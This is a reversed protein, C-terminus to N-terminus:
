PSRLTEAWPGPRRAFAWAPGKGNVGTKCPLTRGDNLTFVGDAATGVVYSIPPNGMFSAVFTNVPDLYVTHADAVQQVM